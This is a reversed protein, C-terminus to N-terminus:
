MMKCKESSQMSFQDLDERCLIDEEKRNGNFVVCKTEDEEDKMVARLVQFIPTIGSGGCVMCFNKVQREVGNITVRGRGLYELKGLPGKVELTHGMALILTLKAYDSILLNL